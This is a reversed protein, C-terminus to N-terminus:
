QSAVERLLNKLDIINLALLSIYLCSYWELLSMGLSKKTCAKSEVFKWPNLVCIERVTYKM